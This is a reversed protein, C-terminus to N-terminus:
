GQPLNRGAPPLDQAWGKAAYDRRRKRAADRFGPDFQDLSDV